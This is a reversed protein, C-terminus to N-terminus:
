NATSFGEVDDSLQGQFAAINEKPQEITAVGIITFSVGIWQISQPWPCNRRRLGMFGFLLRSLCCAADSVEVELHTRTVIVLNCRYTAVAARLITALDHM